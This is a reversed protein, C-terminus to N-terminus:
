LDLGLGIHSGDAAVALTFAPRTPNDFVGPFIAAHIYVHRAVAVHVSRLPANGQLARFNRAIVMLPNVTGGRSLEGWILIGWRCSQEKSTAFDGIESARVTERNSSPNQSSRSESSSSSSVVAARKYWERHFSTSANIELICGAFSMCLSCYDPLWRPHLLSRM